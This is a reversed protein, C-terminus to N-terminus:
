PKERKKAACGAHTPPRASTGAAGGYTGTVKHVGKDGRELLSVSSRPNGLDLVECVDNAVFWPDGDRMVIRVDHGNFDYLEVDTATTM